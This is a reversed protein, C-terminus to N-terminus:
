RRPKNLLITCINGGLLYKRLIGAALLYAAAGSLIMVALHMQRTLIVMAVMAANCLGLSLLFSAEIRPKGLKRSEFLLLGNVLIESVVSALAAGNHGWKPILLGNLVVNAVGAAVRAALFRKERGAGIIAQYCLLDGMGKVPILVALIRITDAAPVFLSGFLLATVDEAVLILGLCGPVCALLLLKIGVSLYAEWEEPRHRYVRSLRPLFVASVSVALALVMSVVKHANTYFGVQAATGLHQLMTIDLKCYLSATISSLMLTLVPALHQKWHLGRCTFGVQKGARYLNWVSPMGNGLCLIWAYLPYDQREKVFLLLAGLSLLKVAVSRLTLYGYEERGQFLWDLSFFHFVLELSFIRVLVDGQWVTFAFMLYVALAAATSLTNLVLLESLLQKQEQRSRRATERIGYAPIGLAAFMTFYSVLNRASAVMGVGEPALIRGIYAGSILPFLVNVLQHVGSLVANKGLSNM